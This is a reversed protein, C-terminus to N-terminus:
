DLESGGPLTRCIPAIQQPNKSDPVILGHSLAGDPEERERDQERALGGPVGDVGPDDVWVPLSVHDQRFGRLVVELVEAGGSHDTRREPETREAAAHEGREAALLRM